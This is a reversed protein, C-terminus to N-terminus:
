LEVKIILAVSFFRKYLALHSCLLPLPSNMYIVDDIPPLPPKAFSSLCLQYGYAGGARRHHVKKSDTYNKAYLISFKPRDQDIKATKNRVYANKHVKIFFVLTGFNVFM